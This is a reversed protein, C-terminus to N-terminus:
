VWTVTGLKLKNGDTLTLPSTTLDVGVSSYAQVDTLQANTNSAANYAVAILEAGQLTNNRNRGIAEIYPEKDRLLTDLQSEVASRNEATDPSLGTITMDIYDRTISKIDLVHTIPKRTFGNTSDKNVSTNVEDLVTQNAIGDTANSEVYINVVGLTKTGYVYVNKVSTPEISWQYYDSIAGGQAPNRKAALVRDRFSETSEKDQGNTASAVIFQNDIDAIPTIIQLTDGNSINSEVGSEVAVINISLTAGSFITNAKTTKYNKGTTSSTFLTEQPIVIDGTGNNTVAITCNFFSAGSRSMNLEAALIALGAESSTTVFSDNYQQQVKAYLLRIVSSFAFGITKIVSKNQTVSENSEREFYSIFDATIKKITKSM